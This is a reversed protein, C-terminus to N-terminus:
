ATENVLIIGSWSPLTLSSDEHLASPSKWLVTWDGNIETDTLAETATNLIFRLDGQEFRWIVDLSGPTPMSYDADLFRSALLPTVHQRRLDLLAKMEDRVRKHEPKEVESWDLRSAEFTSAETPDPIKAAVAPNSFAKFKGFERRRGDRVAESLAPDDAFDVFFQFPTTAAWEEGMFLMPPNPGLLLAAYAVSLRDRPVIDSLRDGFARNGIQDHNQLFGIFAAPPLHASPEGRPSDDRHASTEGQYAFGEALARGLWRLPADAYDGYYGEQEGTLVAHWTHHIDDNWQATYHQPAGNSSRDLRSAENADNELVLHIHRDPLAARVRESLETLVHTDGDDHIEHVADLRLGDFHYEELWYLANHIFFDRVTRGGSKGDVNVGAGWPTPHRETFFSKAYAHLYNGSPGFHNYVVDLMVMLGLGHARDILRKLDEPTGYAADPAYLLTGDYGWSRTGPFDGVPMLEIATIGLDRLTELKGELAAYTGEPTATGVHLEYIVAEEWPRGTWKGDSWRYASPDVIVSPKHVDDPQFRSAPDPVIVDGDIRFGYRDGPKADAVTVKRWGGDEVTMDVSQGNLMLTVDQASPAWIAFRVGDQTVEAGFPMKHVRQM